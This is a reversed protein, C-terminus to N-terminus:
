GAEVGIAADGPADDEVFLVEVEKAKRAAEVIDEFSPCEAAGALFQTDLGDGAGLQLAVRDSEALGEEEVAWVAQRSGAVVVVADEIFVDFPAQSAAKGDAVHQGLVQADAGAQADLVHVNRVHGEEGRLIIQRDDAVVEQDSWTDADA